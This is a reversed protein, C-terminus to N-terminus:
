YNSAKRKEQKYVEIESKRRQFAYVLTDIADERLIGARILTTLAKKFARFESVTMLSLANAM